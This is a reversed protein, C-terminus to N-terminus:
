VKQSIALLTDAVKALTKADQGGASGSDIRAAIRRILGAAIQINTSEAGM